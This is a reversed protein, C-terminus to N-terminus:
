ALTGVAVRTWPGEHLVVERSLEREAQLSHSQEPPGYRVSMVRRSGSDIAYDERVDGQAARIRLGRRNSGSHNLTGWRMVDQPLQRVIGPTEAFGPMDDFRGETCVVGTSSMFTWAQRSMAAMAAAGMMVDANLEHKNDSASVLKEVGFPEGQWGLHAAPPQEGSYGLSFIHRIKDHARGGRYGHVYYFRPGVPPMYHLLAARSEDVSSTLAYLNGPFRDRVRSVLRWLEGPTTDDADGTNIIENGGEVLAFHEPGVAGIADALCDFLEDESANSLGRLAGATVHWKLGRSAAAALIEQFRVRDDRPDWRPTPWQEWWSGRDTHLQWAARVYHYGVEAFRDLHGEIANVGFLLGHGILNLAHVGVPLRPGTDDVFARDEIRLTGRLPDPHVGAPAGVVFFSEWPGPEDYRRTGVAGGGGEEAAIFREAAVGYLGQGGDLGAGLRLESYMTPHPSSCSVVHEHVEVFRGFISLNIGGGQRQVTFREDVEGFAEADAWVLGTRERGDLRPVDPNYVRLFNLGNWTKFGTGM